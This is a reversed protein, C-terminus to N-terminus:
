KASVQVLGDKTLTWTEEPALRYFAQGPTPVHLGAPGARNGVLDVLALGVSWNSLAVTLGGEDLYGVGSERARTARFKPDWEVRLEFGKDTRAVTALPKGAETRGHANGFPSVPNESDVGAGSKGGETGPEGKQLIPAVVDAFPKQVEAPLERLRDRLADGCWALHRRDVKVSVLKALAAVAARAKAADGKKAPLAALEVGAALALDTWNQRVSADRVEALTAAAKEEGAAAEKMGRALIALVKLGAGSKAGKGHPELIAAAEAVFRGDGARIADLLLEGALCPASVFAGSRAPDLRAMVAAKADRPGFVPTASGTATGRPPAPVKELFEFFADAIEQEAVLDGAKQVAALAEGFLGAAKLHESAKAQAKAEALDAKWDEGARAAGAALLMAAAAVATRIRM